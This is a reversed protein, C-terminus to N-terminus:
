SKNKLYKTLTSEKLYEIKDKANDIIYAEKVTDDIINKYQKIERRTKFQEHIESINGIFKIVLTYRKM